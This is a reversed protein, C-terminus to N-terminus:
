RTATSDFGAVSNLNALLSINHTNGYTIHAMYLMYCMGHFHMIYITDYTVHKTYTM